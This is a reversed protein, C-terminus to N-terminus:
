AFAGWHRTIRISGIKNLKLMFITTKQILRCLFKALPDGLFNGSLAWYVSGYFKLTKYPCPHAPYHLRYLSQSRAPRDPSRIGNPALNEASTWVSGPVWGAEQVIPVPDKRPTFLSWPTVSVAWGRRIGPDHFLLAIGKVVRQATHGTCFRM